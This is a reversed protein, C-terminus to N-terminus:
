RRLKEAETQAWDLAERPTAEGEVVRDLAAFLRNMEGVYDTFLVGYSVLMVSELSERGAAVVDEGALQEYRSSEVLSKRALVLRGSMQESLFIAWRWCADHSSAQSSIV